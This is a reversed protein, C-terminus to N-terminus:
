PTGPTRSNRGLPAGIQRPPPVASQIVESKLRQIAFDSDTGRNILRDIKFRRRRAKQGLPRAVHEDRPPGSLDAVVAFTGVAAFRLDGTM